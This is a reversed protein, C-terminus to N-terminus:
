EYTPGWTEPQDPYDFMLRPYGRSPRVVVHDGLAPAVYRPEAFTLPRMRRFEAVCADVDRYPGPGGAKGPEFSYLWRAIMREDWLVELQHSRAGFGFRALVEYGYDELQMSEAKGFSDVFDAWLMLYEELSPAILSGEPRAIFAGGNDVDIFGPPYPCGFLCVCREDGSGALYPQQPRLSEELSHVCEWGFLWQSGAMKRTVEHPLGDHCLFWEVLSEPVCGLAGFLAERIEVEPRPPRLGSVFLELRPTSCIRLFQETVIESM